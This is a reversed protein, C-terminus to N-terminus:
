HITILRKGTMDLSEGQMRFDMRESEISQYEWNKCERERKKFGMLITPIITVVLTIRTGLHLEIIPLHSSSRASNSCDNSSRKM